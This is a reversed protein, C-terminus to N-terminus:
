DEMFSKQKGPASRKEEKKEPGTYEETPTVEGTDTDVNEGEATTVQQIEEEANTYTADETEDAEVNGFLVVNDPYKHYLRFARNLTTKKCMEGPWDVWPGGSSMKSKNKAKIFEDYHLITDVITGDKFYIRQYAAVINELKIETASTKTSEHVRVIGNLKDVKFEDNKMVLVAEPVRKITPMMELMERKGAPSTQVKLKGGGTPIVYLKNDRFSLGTTGAYVLAMFHNIKDVKQLEPKDQLIQLYAFREQELRNEGDKKGTCAEYNRIFREKVDPMGFVETVSKASAVKQDLTQIQGM